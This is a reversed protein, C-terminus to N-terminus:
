DQKNVIPGIGPMLWKEGSCAKIIGMITLVLWGVAAALLLLNALLALIGSILALIVAFIVIVFFVAFMAITLGIGQRAHWQIFPDDKKALLPVLSLIGLYSLVCMVTDQQGVPASAPTAAPDAPPTAPDPPPPTADSM